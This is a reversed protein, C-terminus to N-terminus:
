VTALSLLLKLMDVQRNTRTKAYAAQLQTKLTNVSVNLRAAMDATSGGALIQLAARAEAQTLGFLECLADTPVSAAQALDYVFVISRACEGIATQLSGGGLPAVHIVYQPRGEENSLVLARSFHDLRDRLSWPGLSDSIARQLATEFARLPGRLHLEGFAGPSAGAATERKGGRDEIVFGNGQKLIRKAIPNVFQVNRHGDLLLVGDRLRELMGLSSAMQLQKDRLHFMVGLARSVHPLVRKLLHVQTANFRTEAEGHYITFATPLKHADTGDFVVSTCMGTIGLPQWLERYFPTAILATRSVLEDGLVVTGEVTLKRKVAAQVYPDELMIKSAYLEIAAPSINHSFTFGGQAPSHAWTFLLASSAGCLTCIACIAEPWRLPELSASYIAHIASDFHDLDNNM